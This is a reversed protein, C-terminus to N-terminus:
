FSVLGFALAYKIYDAQSEIPLKGRIGARHNQVTTRTINLKQAIAPNEMGKAIMTLVEVERGTLKQFQKEYELIFRQLNSADSIVKQEGTSYEEKKGM